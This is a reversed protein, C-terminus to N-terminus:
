QPFIPAELVIGSKVDVTTLYSAKSGDQLCINEKADLQWCDHVAEVEPAKEIPKKSRPRNLKHDKFWKQLSRESPMKANPYREELITLIYGAGWRPYNRKLMLAIRQLKAYKPKQPGCNHYKPKLGEIGNKTFAQWIRRTTPYSLNLAESIQVFSQGSQRLSVVKQRLHLAVAM